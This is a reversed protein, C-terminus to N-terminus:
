LIGDSASRMASLIRWSLDITRTVVLPEFQLDNTVPYRTV